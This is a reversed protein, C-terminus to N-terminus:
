QPRTDNEEAGPRWRGLTSVADQADPFLRIL